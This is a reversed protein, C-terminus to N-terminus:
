LFDELNMSSESLNENASLDTSSTSSTLIRDIAPITYSLSEAPKEDACSVVAMFTREYKKDM